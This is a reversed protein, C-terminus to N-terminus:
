RCSITLYLACFISLFHTSEVKSFFEEVSARPDILVNFDASVSRHGRMEWILIIRIRWVTNARYFDRWTQRGQRAFEAEIDSVGSVELVCRRKWGVEDRFAVAFRRSMRSLAAGAALPLVFMLNALVPLPLGELDFSSMVPEYRELLQHSNTEILMKQGRWNRVVYQSGEMGMLVCATGGFFALVQPTKSQSRVLSGIPLKAPAVAGTTAGGPKPKNQFNRM